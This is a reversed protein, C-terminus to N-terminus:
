RLIAALAAVVVLPLGLATLAIGSVVLVTAPTHVSPSGMFEGVGGIM